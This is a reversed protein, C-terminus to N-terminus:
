VSSTAIMWYFCTLIYFLQALVSLVLLRWSFNKKIASIIFLVLLALSSLPLFLLHPIWYRSAIFWKDLMLNISVFLNTAFVLVLTIIIIRHIIKM